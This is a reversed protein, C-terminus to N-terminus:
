SRHYPTGRRIQVARYLQEVLVLRAIQHTFTLPSLSVLSTGKMEEPLGNPGGIVFTPQEELSSYLFNSFMESDMSEGDPDLGILYKHKRIASLLQKDSKVVQWSIPLFPALRKQYEDIAAELWYEKTKGVVLIKIM